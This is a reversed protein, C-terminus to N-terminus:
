KKRLSRYDTTSRSRFFWRIWDFIWKVLVVVGVGALISVAIALLDKGM